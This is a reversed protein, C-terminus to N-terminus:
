EKKSRCSVQYAGSDHHGVLYNSQDLINDRLHDIYVMSGRGGASTGGFVIRQNTLGGVLDLFIQEMIGRGNFYYQVVVTKM